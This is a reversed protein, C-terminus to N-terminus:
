VKKEAEDDMLHTPPYRKKLLSNRIADSGFVYKKVFM